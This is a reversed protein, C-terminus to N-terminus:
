GKQNSKPCHWFTVREGCALPLRAKHILIFEEPASHRRSFSAPNRSEGSHRDLFCSSFGLALGM